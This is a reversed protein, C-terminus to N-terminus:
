FLTTYFNKSCVVMSFVLPFFIQQEMKKLNADGNNNVQSDSVSFHFYPDLKLEMEMWDILGRVSVLGFEDM